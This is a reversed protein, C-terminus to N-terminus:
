SFTKNDHPEAPRLGRLVMAEGDSCVSIDRPKYLGGRLSMKGVVSLWKAGAAEIESM